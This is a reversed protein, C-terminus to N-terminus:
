IPPLVEIERLASLLSEEVKRCNDEVSALDRAPQLKAQFQMFDRFPKSVNAQVPSASDCICREAFEAIDTICSNVADAIREMREMKGRTTLCEEENQQRILDLEALTGKHEAKATDLAINIQSLKSELQVHNEVHRKIRDETEASVNQAHALRVEYRGVERRLGSNAKEMEALASDKARLKEELSALSASQAQLQSKASLLRVRTDEAVTQFEKRSDATKELERQMYDARQGLKQLREVERRFQESESRYQKTEELRVAAEKKSFELEAVLRFNQDKLKETEQRFGESEERYRDCETTLCYKQAEGQAVQKGLAQKHEEVMSERDRLDQRLKAITDESVAKQKSTRNLQEYVDDVRSKLETNAKLLEAKTREHASQLERVQSEAAARERSIRARDLRLSSNEHELQERTASARQATAIQSRLEAAEKRSQELMTQATNADEASKRCRVELDGNIRELSAVAKQADALQTGLDVAVGQSRMAEKRHREADKSMNPAIGEQAPEASEDFASQLIRVHNRQEENELASKRLLEELERKEAQIKGLREDQKQSSAPQQALKELRKNAYNLDQEKIAM